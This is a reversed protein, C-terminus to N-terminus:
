KSSDALAKVILEEFDERQVYGTEAYDLMRQYSLIDEPSPEFGLGMIRYTEKIIAPVSSTPIQGSSTPDFASFLARAEDSPSQPNQPNQPSEAPAPPRPSTPGDGPISYPATSPAPPLFSPTQYPETSPNSSTNTYNSSSVPQYGTDTVQKLGQSDTTQTVVRKVSYEENKTVIPAGGSTHSTHSIHSTHSGQHNLSPIPAQMYSESGPNAGYTFATNQTPPEYPKYSSSSQELNTNKLRQEDYGQTISSIPKIEPASFARREVEQRCFYGMVLQEFDDITIKGDHGRDLVKRYSGQDGPRRNGTLAGIDRLMNELDSGDILGDQDKDFLRFLKETLAKVDNIEKLPSFLQENSLPQAQNM